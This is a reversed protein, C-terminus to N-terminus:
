SSNSSAIFSPYPPGPLTMPIFILTLCRTLTSSYDGTPYPRTPSHNSPSELLPVAPRPVFHVLTHDWVLLRMISFGSLMVACARLM